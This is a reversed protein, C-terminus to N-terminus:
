DDESKTLLFKDYYAVFKPYLNEWLTWSEVHHKSIFEMSYSINTSIVTKSILTLMIHFQPSSIPIPVSTTPILHPHTTIKVVPKYLTWNRDWHSRGYVLTHVHDSLVSLNVLVSHTSATAKCLMSDCLWHNEAPISNYSRCLWEKSATAFM